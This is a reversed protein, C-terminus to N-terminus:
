HYVNKFQKVSQLASLLNKVIKAIVPLFMLSVLQSM